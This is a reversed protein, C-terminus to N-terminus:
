EERFSLFFLEIMLIAGIALLGDWWVLVRFLQLILLAVATLGVLFGQRFSDKLQKPTLFLEERRRKRKQPRQRAWIFFLTSVSFLFVFVSVLLILVALVSINEMELKGPLNRYPSFNFLIFIFIGAGVVAALRLIWKTFNM